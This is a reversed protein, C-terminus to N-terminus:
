NFQTFYTDNNPLMNSIVIQFFSPQKALFLSM